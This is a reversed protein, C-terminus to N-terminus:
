KPYNVLICHNKKFLCHIYVYDWGSHPRPAKPSSLMVRLQGAARLLSAHTAVMSPFLFLISYNIESFFSYGLTAM